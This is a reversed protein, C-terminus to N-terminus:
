QVAGTATVTTPLAVQGTEGLSPHSEQFADMQEKRDEYLCVRNKGMRKALYAARDAQKVLAVIDGADRPFLAVGTSITARVEQGENTRFIYDQVSRRILEAIALATQEDTNPVLVVFEEGGWRGVFGVGEVAQKMLGAIGALVRDGTQHGFTNNIKRFDDIDGLFLAVSQNSFQARSMARQAQQTFAAQNLIDLQRDRDALHLSKEYMQANHLTVGAQNAVIGVIRFHEATFLRRYRVLVLLGVINKEAMLPFAMVATRSTWRAEHISLYGLTAIDNALEGTGSAIVRGLFGQQPMVIMPGHDGQEPNALLYENAEANQAYVLCADCEALESIAQAISGSVRQVTEEQSMAAVFSQSIKYLQSIEDHETDINIYLRFTALVGLLPIALGILSILSFSRLALFYYMSLSIPALLIAFWPDMKPLKKEHLIEKNWRGILSVSLVSFTALYVVIAPLHFTQILWPQVYQSTLAFFGGALVASVIAHAVYYLGHEWKPRRLLAHGVLTGLGIVETAGAARQLPSAKDSDFMLALLILIISLTLQDGQPLHIVQWEALICALTLFLIPWSWYLFGSRGIVVLLTIAVVALLIAFIKQKNELRNVSTM